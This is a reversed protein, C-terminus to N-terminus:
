TDTDSQPEAPPRRSLKRAGDMQAHLAAALQVEEPRIRRKLRAELRELMRVSELLCAWLDGAITDREARPAPEALIAPAPDPPAAGNRQPEQRREAPAPAKGRTAQAPAAAVAPLPVPAGDATWAALVQDDKAGSAQIYVQTDTEISELLARIEASEVQYKRVASDGEAQIRAYAPRGAYRSEQPHSLLTILLRGRPASACAAALQSHWVNVHEFM